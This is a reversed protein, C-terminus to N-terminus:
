EEMESIEGERDIRFTRYETNLQEIPYQIDRETNGDIMLVDGQRNVKINTFINEKLNDRYNGIAQFNLLQDGEYTVALLTWDRYMSDQRRIIWKINNGGFNSEGLLLLTYPAEQDTDICNKLEEIVENNIVTSDAEFPISLNRDSHCEAVNELYDVLNSPQGSNSEQEARANKSFANYDESSTFQENVTAEDENESSCGAFLSISIIVLGIAISKKQM